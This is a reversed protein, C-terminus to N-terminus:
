HRKPNQIRVPPDVSPPLSLPLGRVAGVQTWRLLPVHRSMLDAVARVLRLIEVLERPELRDLDDIFVIIPHELEKLDRHLELNLESLSVESLEQAKSAIRRLMKTATETGPLGLMSFVESVVATRSAANAYTQFMEHTKAQLHEPMHERVANDIDVFFQHLLDERNGILWPSFRVVQTQTQKLENLALNVLSSKGSGWAGEVGIVFGRSLDNQLFAGALHKAMEGFGLKDEEADSIPNDNIGGNGTM